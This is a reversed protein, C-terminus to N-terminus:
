NSSKFNIIFCHRNNTYNYELNFKHMNCIQSIIYLGLGLGNSGSTEKKDGRVFADMYYEIPNGLEKGANSIIIKDNHCEITAHGDSAYKIANDVLNKIALTFLQFDVKLISDCFIKTQVKENFKELMMMDEVQELILSFHCEQYNLAYSKSLLQEVKGFENILMDLREFVNILRTKHTQNTVMESLIRGKGIPTKLEHMIARLFLQRSTILERIKCAANEFEKAVNGIEDKADANCSRMVANMNGSAFDRIDKSLRRLPMLSKLVSIYLSILLISVFLFGFVLPDNVNKSEKSDLLIRFSPNEIQLYLEKKYIISHILGIPTRRKFKTEGNKIVNKILLDNEVYELGFNEFYRRISQPPNGKEYLGLLYNIASVQKEYIRDVTKDSQISAFTFFLLCVVSFAIAFIITTKTTISYRM